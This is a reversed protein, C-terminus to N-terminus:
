AEQERLLANADGTVRILLDCVDGSNKRSKVTGVVTYGIGQLSTGGTLLESLADNREDTRGEILSPSVRYVGSVAKSRRMQHRIEELSLPHELFATPASARVQRDVSAKLATLHGPLNGIGSTPFERNMETYEGCQRLLDDLQRQVSTKRISPM